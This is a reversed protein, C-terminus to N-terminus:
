KNLLRDLAARTGPGAIGDVPNAYVSQFRKLAQLTDPGFSGDVRGKLKFGANNLAEQLLMVQYGKSGMKLTVNPIIYKPKAPAPKPKAPAPKPKPKPKVVPKPAPKVVPKPAPKVVPKAIEKDYEPQYVIVGKENFVRYYKHKDAIEKASDLDKFAGVQSAVDKWTKRVRYIESAPVVPKSVPAVAKPTLIEDVQNKFKTLKSSDSVWPAPCNKGTVDYHRVIDAVPNLKFMKCLEAAVKASREITDEHITGDKELCMEIGITTVNADGYYTTGNARKVSGKFKAIRCTKENAHYAIEDLPLILTASDRDVFLHAGAYRSGGGDSGDFYNQHGEDTGGPSATWHMVIGKVGNNKIGPRSFQNKIVYDINWPAM